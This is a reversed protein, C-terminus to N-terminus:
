FPIDDEAYTSGASASEDAPSQSGSQSGRAAHDSSNQRGSDKGAALFVVHDTVIETTYKKNGDKDDWSRTQLRGEIYVSRGKSLYKQCNEAQTGWVVIRHWETKEQRQGNKDKWVENTALSFNCVAKQGQTYKLDPDSGLNGLLIVKNVSGM